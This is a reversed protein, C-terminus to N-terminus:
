EGPWVPMVEKRPRRMRKNEVRFALPCFADETGEEVGFRHRIGHAASQHVFSNGPVREQVPGKGTLFLAHAAVARQLRGFLRRM